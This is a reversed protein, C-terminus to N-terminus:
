MKNLSLWAAALSVGWFKMDEESRFGVQINKDLVYKAALASAVPLLLDKQPVKMSKTAMKMVQAAVASVLALKMLDSSM